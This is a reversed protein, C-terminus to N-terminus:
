KRIEDEYPGKLTKRGYDVIGGGDEDDDKSIGFFTDEDVESSKAMEKRVITKIEDFKLLTKTKKLLATLTDSRWKKDIMITKEDEMSLSIEIVEDVLVNM